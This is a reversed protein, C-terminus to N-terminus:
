ENLSKSEGYPSAAASGTGNNLKEALNPDNSPVVIGVCLAGMIFFVGFRWYITKFASKVYKRPYKTEGAVM